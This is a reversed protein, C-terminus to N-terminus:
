FIKFDFCFFAFVLVGWFVFGDERLVILKFVWFMMFLCFFLRFLVCLWILSRVGLSLLDVCVASVWVRRELYLLTDIEM